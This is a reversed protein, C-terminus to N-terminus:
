WNFLNTCKHCVWKNKSFGLDKFRLYFEELLLMLNYDTDETMDLTKIQKFFEEIEVENGNAIEIIKNKLEENDINKILTEIEKKTILRM